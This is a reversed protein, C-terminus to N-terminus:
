INLDEGTTWSNKKEDPSTWLLHYDTATFRSLRFTEPFEFFKKKRLIKDAVDDTGRFEAIFRKQSTKSQLKM